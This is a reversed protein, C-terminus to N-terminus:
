CFENKEQIQTTLDEKIKKDEQKKSRLRAIIREVERLNEELLTNKEQYKKMQEM